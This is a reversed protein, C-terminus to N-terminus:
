FSSSVCSHRSFISFFHQYILHFTGRLRLFYFELLSIINKASVLWNDLSLRWTTEVQESLGHQIFISIFSFFLKSQQRPFLISVIPFFISFYAFNWFFFFLMWCFDSFTSILFRDEDKNGLEQLVTHAIDMKRLDLALEFRHDPDTSM